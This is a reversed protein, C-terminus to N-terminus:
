VPRKSSIHAHCQWWFLSVTVFMAVRQSTLLQRASLRKIEMTTVVHDSLPLM